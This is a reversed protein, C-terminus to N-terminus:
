KIRWIRLLLLQLIRAKICKIYRIWWTCLSPLCLSYSLQGRRNIWSASQKVFSRTRIETTSMTSWKCQSVSLTFFPPSRWTSFSGTWVINSSTHFSSTSGVTNRKHAISRLAATSAAIHWSPPLQYLLFSFCSLPLWEEFWHFIGSTNKLWIRLVISPLYFSQIQKFCRLRSPTVVRSHDPYLQMSIM